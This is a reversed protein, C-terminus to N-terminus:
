EALKYSWMNKIQDKIKEYSWKKESNRRSNPDNVTFKGDEYDVIVIFHGADTFDGPAMSAIIPHGAKLEAAMVEESLAIEKAELGMNACGEYMLSWATGQGPMYYGNQESMRAIRVPTWRVNGTLGVAVMSLCTPGCGDLAIIDDGYSVYGWRSDWQMLLPIEGKTYDESIDVAIDNKQGRKFPYEVAFPIAEPSKTVLKILNEPYAKENELMFDIVEALGSQSSKLNELKELMEESNEFKYMDETFTYMSSDFSVEIRDYGTTGNQGQANVKSNDPKNEGTIASVILLVVILGSFIITTWVAFFRIRRMRKRKERLERRRREAAAKEKRLQEERIKSKEMSITRLEGMIDRRYKNNSNM